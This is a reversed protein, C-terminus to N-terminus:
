AFRQPWEPHRLNVTNGTGSPRFDFLSSSADRAYDDATHPRESERTCCRPAQSRRSPVLKFIVILLPQDGRERSFKSTVNRQTMADDSALAEM